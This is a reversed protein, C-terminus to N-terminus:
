LIPWANRLFRRRKVSERFLEYSEQQIPSLGFVGTQVEVLRGDDDFRYGLQGIWVLGEKEFSDEDGAADRAVGLVSERTAAPDAVAPVVALLEALARHHRDLSDDGYTATIGADLLLGFSWLNSVVLALILVCIAITSRKM